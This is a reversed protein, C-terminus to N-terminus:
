QMGRLVFEKLLSRVRDEQYILTSRPVGLEEAAERQSLQRVFRAEFLPALDPPLCERRFRDIAMKADIEESPASPAADPLSGEPVGPQERRYRRLHDRAANTAVQALWAGFNGGQFNARLRPESLLRYFVEHTVTEADAGVVVRGVAGVVTRYHDRYCQELVGRSGAHFDGLLKAEM